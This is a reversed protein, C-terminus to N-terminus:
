KENQEKQKKKKDFIMWYIIPIMAVGLILITGYPSSLFRVVYGFKPVVRTVKADIKDRSYWGDDTNAKDGRILYRQSINVMLEQKESGEVLEPTILCEKKDGYLRISAFYSFTEYSKKTISFKAPALSNRHHSIVNKYVSGELSSVASVEVEIDNINFYYEGSDFPVTSYTVIEIDSFIFESTLFIASSPSDFQIMEQENFTEKSLHDLTFTEGIDKIDVVRHMDTGITPHEFIVIDYVDLKTEEDIKESVVFDFAQIQDDHGNLFEEYEKNKVSMSDTLVVDYRTNFFYFPKKTLKYVLSMIVVFFLFGILSYTLVKNVIKRSKIM